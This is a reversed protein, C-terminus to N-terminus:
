SKPSNFLERYLDTLRKAATRIHFDSEARRRAAIGLARRRNDDSMLALVADALDLQSDPRVLFAASSDIPFIERTGGVDTAVIPLGCAAAELLVRGLPEQRAAHVLLTCECLLHAVDTRSGLFHVRGALPEEAAISQLLVEFDHSEAKNSTREGVILWHV